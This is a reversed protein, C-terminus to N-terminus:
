PYSTNSVEYEEGQCIFLTSETYTGISVQKNLDDLYSALWSLTIASVCLKTLKSLLLLHNIANFTASLDLCM